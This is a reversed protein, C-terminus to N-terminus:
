ISTGKAIHCGAEDLILYRRPLPRLFAQFEGQRKQAHAGTGPERILWLPRSGFIPAMQYSLESGARPALFFEGHFAFFVSGLVDSALSRSASASSLPPAVM